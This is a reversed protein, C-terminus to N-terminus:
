KEAKIDLSLPKKKTSLVRNRQTWESRHGKLFGDLTNLKWTDKITHSNIMLPLSINWSSKGGHTYLTHRHTNLRAEIAM